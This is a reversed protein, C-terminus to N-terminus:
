LIGRKNALVTRQLDVQARRRHGDLHDFLFYPLLQLQMLLLALLTDLVFEFLLFQIHAALM